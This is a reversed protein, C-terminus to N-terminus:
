TPSTGRLTRRGFMTLDRRSSHYNSLITGLPATEKALVESFGEVGWKAASYAARGMAGVRGGVSSLQIIHGSRQERM